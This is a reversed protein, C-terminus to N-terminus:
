GRVKGRNRSSQNAYIGPGAKAMMALPDDSVSKTAATGGSRNGAEDGPPAAASPDTVLPDTALPDTVPPDTLPEDNRSGERIRRVMEEALQLDTADLLAAQVGGRSAEEASIVGFAILGDIPDAGFHHAIDVALAPDRAEIRRRVTVHNIELASALSRLSAGNSVSDVWRQAPTTEM